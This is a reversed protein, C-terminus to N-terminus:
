VSHSNSIPKSYFTYKNKFVKNTDIYNKITSVSIQDIAKCGERYSHFPSGPIEKGNKYIYLKYGKRSGKQLAFEKALSFHSKGSHINFIPKVEFLSQIEELDLFDLVNSFYRKSNMNNSLKLLIVKGQPTQHYGQIILFLGLCWIKFDVGKRSLFTLNKFFPLIYQFLVDTDTISLQYAKSKSSIICNPKSPVFLNSYIPSIKVNQLFTAIAELVQKDKQTISFVAKSNTFYFSGAGEVFGLLWYKNVMENRLIYGENSTRLSNM